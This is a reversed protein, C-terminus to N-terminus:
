LFSGKRNLWLACLWFSSIIKHFDSGGYFGHALFALDNFSEAPNINNTGVRFMLLSLALQIVLNVDNLLNIIDSTDM